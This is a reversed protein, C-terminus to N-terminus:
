AAEVEEQDFESAPYGKYFVEGTTLAAKILPLSYQGVYDQLSKGRLHSRALNLAEATQYAVVFPSKERDRYAVAQLNTEPIRKISEAM